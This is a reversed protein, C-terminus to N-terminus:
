SRTGSVHQANPLSLRGRAAARTLAIRSAVVGVVAGVFAATDTRALLVLAAALVLMRLVLSTAVVLGPHDSTVIRHSTWWLGGFFVLGTVIGVVVGLAAMIVLSV